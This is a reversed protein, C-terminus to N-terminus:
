RKGDVEIFQLFKTRTHADKRFSNLMKSTIMSIDRKHIDRTTICEHTSEVMVDIGLPQLMDQIYQTIQATIKEQVQFRRAYNEVVRALKSINIMKCRPLYGIHVKGIIPTIHHEYHSKYSINHLVILENYGTMKKFTHELYKRPKIHYGSFWDDYAEAVRRPTDLLDKRTPDENTWHLLIHM